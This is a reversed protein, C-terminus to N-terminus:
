VKPFGRSDLLIGDKLNNYINILRTKGAIIHITSEQIGDIDNIEVPRDSIHYKQEGINFFYNDRSKNTKISNEVCFNDIEDITDLFSKIQTRPSKKGM